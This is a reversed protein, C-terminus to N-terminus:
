LVDAFSPVGLALQDHVCDSYKVIWSTTVGGIFLWCRDRMAPSALETITFKDSRPISGLM